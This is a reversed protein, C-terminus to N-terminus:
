DNSYEDANDAYFYVDGNKSVKITLFYGWDTDIVFMGTSVILTDGLSKFDIAGMPSLQFKESNEIDGFSTSRIEYNNLIMLENYHITLFLSRNYLVKSEKESVHITDAVIENSCLSYKVHYNGTIEEGNSINNKHILSDRSIVKSLDLSTKMESSNVFKIYRGRCGIICTAIICVILLNVNKM